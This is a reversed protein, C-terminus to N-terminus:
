YFHIHNFIDWDSFLKEEFGQFHEFIIYSDEDAARVDDAILKLYDVRSSIYNEAINENTFGKTLDFRFGDIHYESILYTNIRKM